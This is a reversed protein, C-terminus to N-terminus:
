VTFKRALNLRVVVEQSGSPVRNLKLRETDKLPRESEKCLNKAFNIALFPLGLSLSILSSKRMSEKRQGEATGARKLPRSLSLEASSLAVHHGWHSGACSKGRPQCQQAAPVIDWGCRGAHSVPSSGKPCGCRGLSTLAWALSLEIRRNLLVSKFLILICRSIFM